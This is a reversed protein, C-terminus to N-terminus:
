DEMEDLVKDIESRDYENIVHGQLLATIEHAGCGLCQAIMDILVAMKSIEHRKM